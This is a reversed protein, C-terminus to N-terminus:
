LKKQRPAHRLPFCDTQVKVARVFHEVEHLHGAIVEPAQGSEVVIGQMPHADRNALRHDVGDLVAIAVVLLLVDVDLERREAVGARCADRDPNAVFPGSEIGRINGIGRAGSFTRFALPRPMKMM